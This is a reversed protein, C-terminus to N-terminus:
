HIRRKVFVFYDFRLTTKTGTEGLSQVSEEDVQIGEIQARIRLIQVTEELAYPMTRIIMVRDLLDLPIGHPSVIETGRLLFYMYLKNLTM